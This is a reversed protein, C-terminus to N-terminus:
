SLSFKSIDLTHNHYRIVVRSSDDVDFFIDFAHRSLAEEDCRVFFNSIERLPVLYCKGRPFLLYGTEGNKGRVYARLEDRITVQWGRPTPSGERRFIKRHVEARVTIWGEFKSLEHGVYQDVNSLLENIRTTGLKQSLNESM